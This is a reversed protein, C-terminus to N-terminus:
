HTIFYIFKGIDAGVEIGAHMAFLLLFAFIVGLVCIQTKDTAKDIMKEEKMNDMNVNRKDM